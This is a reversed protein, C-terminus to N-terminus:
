DTIRYRKRNKFPELPREFDDINETILFDVNEKIATYLTLATIKLPHKMKVRELMELLQIDVDSAIKPGIPEQDMIAKRVQNDLAVVAM